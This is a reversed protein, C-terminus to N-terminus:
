GNIRVSHRGKREGSLLELRNPSPVRLDDLRTASHLQQLRMSARKLLDSPFRRSLGTSYFRETERDAFSRIM